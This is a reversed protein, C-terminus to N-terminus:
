YSSKPNWDPSPPNGLTSSNARQVRRHPRFPESIKVAVQSLDVSIEVVMEDSRLKIDYKNTFLKGNIAESVFSAKGLTPDFGAFYSGDAARVVYLSVITNKNDNM